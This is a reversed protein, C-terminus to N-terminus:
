TGTDHTKKIAPDIPPVGNFGLAPFIGVPFSEFLGPRHENTQAPDQGTSPGFRDGRPTARRVM